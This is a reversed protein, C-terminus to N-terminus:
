PGSTWGDRKEQELQRIRNDFSTAEDDRGLQRALASAKKYEVIAKDIVGSDELEMAKAVTQNKQDDMAPGDVAMKGRNNRRRTLDLDIVEPPGMHMLAFGDTAKLQSADIPHSVPESTSARGDEARAGPARSAEQMAKIKAIKKDGARARLYPVALKIFLSAIAAVVALAIGIVMGNALGQFAIPMVICIGATLALWIITGKHKQWVQLPSRKPSSAAKAAKPSRSKTHMVLSISQLFACKGNIKPERTDIMSYKTM